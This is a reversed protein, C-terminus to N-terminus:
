TNKCFDYCSLFIFLIYIIKRNKTLMCVFVRLEAVEFAFQQKRINENWNYNM